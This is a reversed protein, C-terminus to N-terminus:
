EYSRHDKAAQQCKFFDSILYNKDFDHKQHMEKIFSKVEDHSSYDAFSLPTLFMMLFIIRRM